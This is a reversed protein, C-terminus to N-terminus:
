KGANEAAQDAEYKGITDKTLEVTPIIIRKDAPITIKKDAKVTSKDGAQIQELLQISEYGFIYPQQAVTGDIGGDKIGKITGSDTDFCVIKVKGVKNADKVASYIAPGNYSYLGVLGALDSRKVLEDAANTKARSNDADDTRVDLINIKTGKIADRIGQERDKANQADRKGVFLVINGGNPLCKKLLDGAMLGAAHNDTGIYAVRDSKEADSDSTIVTIKKALTNIYDTESDPHIPSFAIGKVGKSVLDDLMRKQIGVDATDPQKFELDVDGLDKAAKEAGSRCAIWYDAANNTVFAVPIKAGSPASGGSTSTPASSSGGGSNNQSCGAFALAMVAAAALVFTHKM